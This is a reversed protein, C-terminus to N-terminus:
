ACNDVKSLQHQSIATVNGKDVKALKVVCQSRLPRERARWCCWCLKIRLLCWLRSRKIDLSGTDEDLLALGTNQESSSSSIKHCISIIHPKCIKTVLKGAKDKMIILWRCVLSQSGKDNNEPFDNNNFRWSGWWGKDLPLDPLCQYNGTVGRSAESM